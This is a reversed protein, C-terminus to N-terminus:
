KLRKYKWYRKDGPFSFTVTDDIVRFNLIVPKGIQHPYISGDKIITITNKEADISYKGFAAYFSRFVAQYEELTTPPANLRPYDLDQHQVMMTGDSFFCDYAIEHLGIKKGEKDGKEIRIWRGVLPNTLAKEVTELNNQCSFLLLIFMACMWRSGKLDIM